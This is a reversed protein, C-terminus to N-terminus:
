ERIRGGQMPGTRVRGFVQAPTGGETPHRVEPCVTRPSAPCLSSPTVSSHSDATSTGAIPIRPLLRVLPLRPVCLAGHRLPSVPGAQVATRTLAPVVNLM